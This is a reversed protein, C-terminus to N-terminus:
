EKVAEEGVGLAEIRRDLVLDGGRLHKEVKAGRGGFREFPERIPEVDREIGCPVLRAPAQEDAVRHLEELPAARRAPHHHRQPQRELFIWARRQKRLRARAAGACPAEANDFFEAGAPRRAHQKAVRGGAHAARDCDLGALAPLRPVASFGQMLAVAFKESVVAARKM